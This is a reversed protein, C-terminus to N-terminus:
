EGFPVGGDGQVLVEGRIQDAGVLPRSGHRGLQHPMAQDQGYEITQVLHVGSKGVAVGVGCGEPCSGSELGEVVILVAAIGCREDESASSAVVVNKVLVYAQDLGGMDGDFGDVGGVGLAIESGAGGVEGSPLREEVGEAAVRMTDEAAGEASGPSEAEGGSDVGIVAIRSLKEGVGGRGAEVLVKENAVDRGGCFAPRVETVGGFLDM